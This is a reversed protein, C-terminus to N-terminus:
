DQHRHHDPETATQASTAAVTPSQHDLSASPFIQPSQQCDKSTRELTLSPIANSPFRDTVNIIAKKAQTYAWFVKYKLSKDKKVTRSNSPPLHFSRHTLDM